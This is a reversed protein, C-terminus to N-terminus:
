EKGGKTAAKKEGVAAGDKSLVMMSRLLKAVDTKKAAVALELATKGYKGDKLHLDSYREQQFKWILELYARDFIKPLENKPRSGTPRRRSRRALSAELEKKSTAGALFATWGPTNPRFGTTLLEVCALHGQYSAAHLPSALGKFMLEATRAGADILVQVVLAHGNQSAM